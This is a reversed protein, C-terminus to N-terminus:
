FCKKCLDYNLHKKDSQWIDLLNENYVNGVVVERMWDNCCLIVDGNALIPLNINLQNCEGSENFRTKEDKPKNIEVNGARNVAWYDNIIECGPLLDNIMEKEFVNDNSLIFNIRITRNFIKRFNNINKVMTEFNLGRMQKEYTEKTAGNVNFYVVDIKSDVLKKAKEENLLSANSSIMVLSKPCMKKALDIFDFLRSDLLPEFQLYLGIQGSYEPTLDNLIKEFFERKMVELGFKKFSKQHPCIVCDSTCGTRTQIFVASPFNPFKLGM